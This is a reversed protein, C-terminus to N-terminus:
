YKIYNIDSKLKTTRFSFSMFDLLIIGWRFSEFFISKPCFISFYVFIAVWISKHFYPWIKVMWFDRIISHNFNEFFLNKMYIKEDQIVNYISDWYCIQFTFWYLIKWKTINWDFSWDMKIKKWFDMIIPLCIKKDIFLWVIKKM